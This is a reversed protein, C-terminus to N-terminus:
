LSREYLQYEKIMTDPSIWGMLAPSGDAHMLAGVLHTVGAKAASAGWNSMLLQYVRKDQHAPTVAVTKCVSVRPRGGLAMEFAYHLGVPEGDPALAICTSGAAQSAREPSYLALFEDLEIPSYMFATAFAAASVAHLAPLDRPEIPRVTYGLERCAQAKAGFREALEGPSEPLWNTAYTAVPTFAAEAFRDVYHPPHYPEGPIWEPARQQTVFRYDHWTSFDMPGRVVSCGERALFNMGLDFLWRATDPNEDCEFFGFLGFPNGRADLLRPNIIAALRGRGAPGDAVILELACRSATPNSPETAALTRAVTPAAPHPTAAHLREGIVAFTDRVGRSTGHRIQDRLGM